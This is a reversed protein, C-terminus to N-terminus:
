DKEVLMGNKFTKVKELEGDTGYIKTKGHRQGNKVKIKVRTKGEKTFKVFTGSYPKGDEIKRFSDSQEDGAVFISIQEVGQDYYYYHWDKVKQDEEYSGITSKRGKPDIISVDGHKVTPSYEADAIFYVHEIEPGSFLKQIRFDYSFLTDNRNFKVTFYCYEDRYRINDYTFVPSKTLTDFMTVAQIIGKDFMAQSKIKGAGNYETVKGQRMGNWYNSELWVQRSGILYQRWVGTQEDSAYNGTIFTKTEEDRQMWEGERNGHIYTGSILINKASDRVEVPGHLLGNKYYSLEYRQVLALKYCTDLPSVTGITTDCMVRNKTLTSYLESRGNLIGAKYNRKLYLKGSYPLKNGQYDSFSTYYYKWEGDKKDEIYRGEEVLANTYDYIYWYGTKKGDRMQGKALLDREELKEPIRGTLWYLAPSYIRLSGDLLDNNYTGVFISDGKIERFPGDKKGQNYYVYSALIVKTEEKNQVFYEWKGHPKDHLFQGKTALIPGIRYTYMGNKIGSVFTLHEETEQEHDYYIVTGDLLDDSYNGKELLKGTIDDRVEYGGHKKGNLLTAKYQLNGNVAYEKIEGNLEDNRISGQRKVTRGDPHYLKFPGSIQGNVYEYQSLLKGTSPDYEFEAWKHENKYIEKRLIVGNKKYSRVSEYKFPTGKWELVEGDDNTERYSILVGEDFIMRYLEDGNEDYSANLGHPLGKKYNNEALINGSKGIMKYGGDLLQGFATGEASRIEDLDPDYFFYTLGPKFSTKSTALVNFIEKGDAYQITKRGAVYSSSSSRSPRSYSYEETQYPKLEQYHLINPQEASVPPWASSSRQEKLPTYSSNSSRPVDYQASNDYSPLPNNDPPIWGPKGTWINTNGLTSYNDRNTNNPNTRKYSQVVTGDKRQYSKVTHYNPNVSGQGLLISICFLFLISLISKRVLM